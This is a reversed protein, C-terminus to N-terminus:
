SWSFTPNTASPPPRVGVNPVIPPVPGAVAACFEHSCILMLPTFEHTGTHLYGHAGFALVSGVTDARRKQFQGALLLVEDPIEEPLQLDPGRLRIRFLDHAQHAGDELLDFGLGSPMGSKAGGVFTWPLKGPAVTATYRAPVVVVAVM